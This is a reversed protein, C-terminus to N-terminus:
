EKAHIQSKVDSSSIFKVKSNVRNRLVLSKNTNRRTTFTLTLYVIGETDHRNTYRSKYVNQILQKYIGTMPYLYPFM